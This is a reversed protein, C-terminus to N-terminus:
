RADEVAQRVLREGIRHGRLAPPVGTHDIVINRDESRRYTIEAELGEVFLHYRGGVSRM